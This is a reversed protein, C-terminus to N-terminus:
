RALQCLHHEQEEWVYHHTGEEGDSPESVSPCLLFASSTCQLGEIRNAGGHDLYEIEPCFVEKSKMDVKQNVKSQDFWFVHDKDM